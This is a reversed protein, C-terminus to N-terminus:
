VSTKISTHSNAHQSKRFEEGLMEKIQNIEKRFATIGIGFLETVAQRTASTTVIYLALLLRQKDQVQEAVRTVCDLHRGQRIQQIVDAQTRDTDAELLDRLDAKVANRAEIFQNKQTHTVSLLDKMPVTTTLSYLAFLKLSDHEYRQALTRMLLAFDIHQDARTAWGAWREPRSRPHLSLWDDSARWGVAEEFAVARVDHKWLSRRSGSFAIWIGVWAAGKDALLDPQAQLAKWLNISGLQFCDEADQNVYGLSRAKAFAVKRVQTDALLADLTVAGRWRTAYRIEPIGSLSM